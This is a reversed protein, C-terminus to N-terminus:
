MRSLEQRSLADTTGNTGSLGSHHLLLFGGANGIIQGRGGVNLLVLWDLHDWREILLWKILVAPSGAHGRTRPSSGRGLVHNIPLHAWPCNWPEGRNHSLNHQSILVRCKNKGGLQVSASYPHGLLGKHHISRSTEGLRGLALLLWMRNWTTKVM